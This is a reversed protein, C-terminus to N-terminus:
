FLHIFFVLFVAFHSIFSDKPLKRQVCTSNLEFGAALFHLNMHIGSVLEKWFNNGLAKWQISLLLMTRM